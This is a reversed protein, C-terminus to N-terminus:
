NKKFGYAEAFSPEKGRKRKAYKIEILGGLVKASANGEARSVADDDPADEHPLNTFLLKSGAFAVVVLLAMGAAAFLVRNSTGAMAAGGLPSNVIIGIGGIVAGILIVFQIKRILLVRDRKSM